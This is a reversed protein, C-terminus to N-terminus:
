ILIIQEFQGAAGVHVSRQATRQQHAVYNGVIMLPKLSPAASNTSFAGNAMMYSILMMVLFTLWVCVILVVALCVRHKTNQPTIGATTSPATEDAQSSRRPQRVPPLQTQPVRVTQIRREGAAAAAAAPVSQAASSGRPPPQVPQAPAATPPQMQQTQQSGHAQPRSSAQQVHPAAAATQQKAAKKPQKAAPPPTPSQNTEGPQRQMNAQMYAVWEDKTGQSGPHQANYDILFQKFLAQNQPHHPSLYHLQSAQQSPPTQPEQASAARNPPQSKRDALTPQVAAASPLKNDSM